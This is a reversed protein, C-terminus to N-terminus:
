GIDLHNIKSNIYQELYMLKFTALNYYDLAHSQQMYNLNTFVELLLSRYFHFYSEDIASLREFMYAAQLYMWFVRIYVWNLTENSNNQQLEQIFRPLYKSIVMISRIRERLNDSYMFSGPRQRYYYYYYDISKVRRATCMVQITWLEDEHVIAENMWINNDILHSRRTFYLYVLPPFSDTSMLQAYLLDGSVVNNNIWKPRQYTAIKHNFNDNYFAWVNGLIIDAGSETANEWLVKLTDPLIYDDSDIYLIYNGKAERLGKNRTASIGSNKQTFFRIRSDIEAYKKIIDLSNDTSGDDVIILEFDSFTQNCISEICIAIYKEVNYVPVIVSIKVM